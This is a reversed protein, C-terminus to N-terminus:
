EKKLEVLTAGWSSGPEPDLRYSVVAPHNKLISNTIARLVGIGKGHIIRILYINKALCADIYDPILQKIEKPSFTHLDLIGNIPLEFLIQDDNEM